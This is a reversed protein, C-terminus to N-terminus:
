PLIGKNFVRKPSFYIFPLLFHFNKFDYKKYQKEYGSCEDNNCNNKLFTILISEGASDSATRLGEVTLILRCACVSHKVFPSEYSSNNECNCNEYYEDDLGVISLGVGGLSPLVKYVIRM